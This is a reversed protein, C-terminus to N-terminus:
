SLWLAIEQEQEATFKTSVIKLHWKVRNQFRPFWGAEMPHSRDYAHRAFAASLDAPDKANFIPHIYSGVRKAVDWVILTPGDYARHGNLWLMETLAKKLDTTTEDVAVVVDLGVAFRYDDCPKDITVGYCGGPTAMRGTLSIFVWEPVYGKRRMKILDQARIPMM